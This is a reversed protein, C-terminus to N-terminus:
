CVMEECLEPLHRAACNAMERVDDFNDEALNNITNSLVDLCRPNSLTNKLEPESKSRRLLSCIGELCSLRTEYFKNESMNKYINLAEWVLVQQSLPQVFQINDTPPPPPPPTHMKLRSVPVPSVPEDPKAFHHKFISILDRGNNVQQNNGRMRRIDFVHDQAESDWYCSVQMAMIGDLNVYKVIWTQTEDMYSYTLGDEENKSLVDLLENVTNLVSSYDPNNAYITRMNIYLEPKETCPTQQNM